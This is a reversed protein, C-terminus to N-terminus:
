EDVDIIEKDENPALMGAGGAPLLSSDATLLQCAKKLLQLGTVELMCVVNLSTNHAHRTAM